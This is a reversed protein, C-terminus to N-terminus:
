GRLRARARRRRIWRLLMWLCGALLALAVAAGALLNHIPNEVILDGSRTCFGNFRDLAAPLALLDAKPLPLPAEHPHQDAEWTFLEGAADKEIHGGLVAEVPRERLFDAVRRASAKYAGLDDVLLRGPLLFDGSFVLQEQRDYYILGARQHGPAPLLDVVRGGLEIEARGEPWHDFGFRRQVSPLDTPVLEVGPLGQFQPDGARHDLHGHSHVVLLPLGPQLLARVTKALPADALDGTDILLAQRQGALLYMFPAEWTDGLNERLIWTGAGFPQVQIAAHAQGKPAAPDWPALRPPAGFALAFAFAFGPLLSRM